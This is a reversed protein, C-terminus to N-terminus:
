LDVKTLSGWSEGMEVDVSLPVAGLWDYQVMAGRIEHAVTLVHRDPVVFLLSDHVPLVLEAPLGEEEILRVARV